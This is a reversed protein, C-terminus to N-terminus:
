SGAGSDDLPRDRKGLSYLLIFFSLLLFAELIVFTWPLWFPFFSVGKHDTGADTIEPDFRYRDSFPQPLRKTFHEIPKSVVLTSGGPHKRDYVKGDPLKRLFHGQCYLPIVIFLLLSFVQVCRRMPTDAFLPLNFAVPLRNFFGQRDDLKRYFFTLAIMWPLTALGWYLGYLSVTPDELDPFASWFLPPWDQTNAFLSYSTFFLLLGLGSWLSTVTRNYQTQEPLGGLKGKLELVENRLRRERHVLTEPPAAEVQYDQLQKQTEELDAERDQLRELLWGVRGAEASGTEIPDPRRVDRLAKPEDTGGAYYSLSFNDSLNWVELVPHQKGRKRNPVVRGVYLAIDLVRTFGDFRSAGHGSLAELLAETFYSNEAHTYSYEDARSSALVVRGSGRAFDELAAIPIPAKPLIGEEPNAVGIAHCCDLLVVLKQSHIERLKGTFEDSSITTEELRSLDYDHTMLRSTEGGVGHGSFYVVVTAQPSQRTREVLRDLAELVNQRTSDQGCLLEVQETPYACMQPDTLTAYLDEADQVTTPLDRGVGVILAHGHEFRELEEKPM